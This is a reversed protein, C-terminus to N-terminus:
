HIIIDKERERIKSREKHKKTGKEERWTEMKRYLIYNPQFHM